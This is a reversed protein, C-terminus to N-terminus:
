APAALILSPHRQGPVGQGNSPVRQQHREFEFASDPELALYSEYIRDVNCHHLWFIPHFSSQFSAMIGGVMGHIKNHPTELSRHRHDSYATCAHQAHNGSLLCSSADEAIGSQLIYQKLTHDDRTAAMSYNHRGPFPRVISSGDGFFDAPYEAMLRRRIIAPLVEGEVEVETWDWYPLGLSGDGGCAIDAKRMTREFDLLYPRHWTPFCERRHACYEPNPLPEMGGHIVALRFYQSSGPRGEDNERMKLVATAFREQEAQSM